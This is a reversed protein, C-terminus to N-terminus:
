ATPAREPPPPAILRDIPAAPVITTLDENDSLEPLPRGDPLFTRSRYGSTRNGESRVCIEQGEMALLLLRFLIPVTEDNPRAEAGPVEYLLANAIGDTCDVDDRRRYKTRTAIVYRPSLATFDLQAGPLRVASSGYSDVIRWRQPAFDTIARDTIIGVSAGDSGTNLFYHDDAGIARLDADPNAGGREWGEVREGTRLMTTRLEDLARRFTEAGGIQLDQEGGVQAAAPGGLFLVAAMLALVRM